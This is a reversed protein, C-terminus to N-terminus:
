PREMDLMDQTYVMDQLMVTVRKGHIASKQCKGLVFVAFAECAEHLADFATGQIREVNSFREQQNKQLVQRIVRKMSARPVLCHTSMQYKRIERLAVTGARWRRKKKAGEETPPRKGGNVNACMHSARKGGVVQQPTKKSAIAARALPSMMKGRGVGVPPTTGTAMAFTSEDGRPPM